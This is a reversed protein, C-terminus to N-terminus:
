VKQVKFSVFLLSLYLFCHSASVAMLAQNVESKFLSLSIIWTLLFGMQWYLYLRQRERLVVTYALPTAVFKFFFMPALIQAYIGADRWNIGFVLEFVSPGLVIIFLFPALGISTLAFFTKSFLPRTSKGSRIMESAKQKYVELVSNSVLNIPQGLVKLALFYLGAVELSFLYALLFSPLHQSSVNLLNAPAQYIPFNKYRSFIEKLESASPIKILKYFLFLSIKFLALSLTGTVLGVFMGNSTLQLLGLSVSAVAVILSQVVRTMTYIKLYGLRVLLSAGFEVLAFLTIYFLVVYQWQGILEADRWELYQMVELTVYGLTPALVAIMLLWLGVMKKLKNDDNEVFIASEFGWIILPYLIAAMAIFVSMLGFEDQSFLRTYIPQSVLSILQAVFTGSMVLSAKRTFSGGRSIGSLGDVWAERLGQILRSSISM